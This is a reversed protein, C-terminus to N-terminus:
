EKVEKLTIDGFRDEVLDLRTGKAWKKLEAIARPLTITLQGTKTQQIKM